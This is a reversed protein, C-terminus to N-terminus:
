ESRDGVKKGLILGGTWATLVVIVPIIINIAQNSTPQAGYMLSAATASFALGMYSLIEEKIM